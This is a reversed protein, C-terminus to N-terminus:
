VHARGIKHLQALQAWVAIGALLTLLWIYGLTSITLSKNLYIESGLFTIGVLSAYIMGELLTLPFIALLVVTLYPLFSYGILAGELDVDSSFVLRSCVYFVCPIVVFATLRLRAYWLSQPSYTWISLLFFLGSYAIRLGLIQGLEGKPVIILDIPIWILALLAFVVSLLRVRMYIYEARSGNFDRSHMESTVLDNFNTRRLWEMIGPAITANPNTDNRTKQTKTKIM